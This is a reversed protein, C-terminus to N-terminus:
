VTGILKKGADTQIELRDYDHTDFEDWYKKEYDYLVVGFYGHHEKAIADMEEETHERTFDRWALKNSLENYLTYEDYDNIVSLIENEYFEEDMINEGDFDEVIDGCGFDEACQLLAKELKEMRESQKKYRKGDKGPTMDGLIGVVSNAISLAIMLDKYQKNTINIKM